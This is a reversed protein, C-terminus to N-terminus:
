TVSQPCISVIYECAQELASNPGDETARRTRSSRLNNENHGHTVPQILDVTGDSVLEYRYIEGYATAFPALSPSVGDPLVIDGLKETVRQRAWYGETGEEFIMQVLSLGFITRSRVAEVRPVGLMANEVPITVQREVEEPAAGPHMAIVQIIPTDKGVLEETPRAVVIHRYDSAFLLSLTLVVFASHRLCTHSM